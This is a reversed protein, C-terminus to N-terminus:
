QRKIGIPGFLHRASLPAVDDSVVKIKCVGSSILYFNFYDNYIQMASLFLSAFDYIGDDLAEVM